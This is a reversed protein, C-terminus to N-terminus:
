KIINAFFTRVLHTQKTKVIKASLCPYVVFIIGLVTALPVTRSGTSHTINQFWRRPDLGSLRDAIQEALTELNTSSLLCKSFTEFIKRRRKKKLLQVKLSANDHINQLHVKIQEWNYASHNFHVPTVFFRCNICTVSRLTKSFQLNGIALCFSTLCLGM